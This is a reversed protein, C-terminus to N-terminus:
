HRTDNGAQGDGSLGIRGKSKMRIFIRDKWVVPQSHGIGPIATKWAVNKTGSWELPINKETSVGNGTAGRWQPWEAAVAGSCLMLVWLLLM